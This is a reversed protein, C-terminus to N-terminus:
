QARFVGKLDETQSIFNGNTNIATLRWQYVTGPTLAQGTYTATQPNTNTATQDTNWILKGQTDYLELTYHATSPYPVWSFTPTGTVDEVTDGAGPGVMTIASTVKFVSPPNVIAGNSVEVHQIATGGITDPDRVLGDNEYAALVVYKGDPVGAISFANSVNPATGPDPSRLGPVLTGRALNQVFTSELAVVVSTVSGGPASVIDVTGDLTAAPTQSVSLNVNKVDTSAVTATAPTYNSGRRYAQVSYTGAAVNFLTYAGTSDARATFTTAPGVNGQQEAAVFIEADSTGGDATTLQVTGSISPLGRQDAPLQDLGIESPGGTVVLPDGSKTATATTTDLPLAVRFGSPFPSYDKAAASLKLTEGVPTGQADKRTTPIQLTYTGDAATIAVHGVSRGSVEEATVQANPIGTNTTLDFVRGQVQVPAFCAPDTQGQVVECVQGSSCTSPDGVKCVSKGGGCAALAIVPLSVLLRKM